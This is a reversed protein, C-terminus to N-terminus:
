IIFIELFVLLITLCFKINAIPIFINTNISLAKPIDEIHCATKASVPNVKNVINTIYELKVDTDIHLDSLMVVRTKNSIKPTIIDHKLIKRLYINM